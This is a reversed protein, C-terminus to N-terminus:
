SRAGRHKPLDDGLAVWALKADTHTHDRPPLHEPADLSCTTVDIEDARDEHRFTLQTGCRPCFTRRGKPTSGFETPEGQLLRFESRAVTFWTVYPAGTTRRCVSCHCSTEHTPAASTEYRVAGCFCGGRLMMM